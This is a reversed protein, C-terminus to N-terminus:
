KRDQGPKQEKKEIMEDFRDYVVHEDVVGRVVRGNERTAKFYQTYTKERGKQCYLRTRFGEEIAGDAVDLASHSALVGVRVDDPNYDEIKKLIINRDIM